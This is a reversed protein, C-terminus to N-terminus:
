NRKRGGQRDADSLARDGRLGGDSGLEGGHQQPLNRSLENEEHSEDPDRGKDPLESAELGRQDVFKHKNQEDRNQDV